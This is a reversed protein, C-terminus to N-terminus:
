RELYPKFVNLIIAACTDEGVTDVLRSEYAYDELPAVAQEFTEYEGAQYLIARAEARARLILVPSPKMLPCAKPTPLLSRLVTRRASQSPLTVNRNTRLTWMGAM